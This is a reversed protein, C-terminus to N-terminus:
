HVWFLPRYWVQQHPVLWTIWSAKSTGPPRFESTSTAPLFSRPMGSVSPSILSIFYISPYLTVLHWIVNYKHLIWICICPYSFFPVRSDAALSCFNPSKGGLLWSKQSREFRKLGFSSSVDVLAAFSMAWFFSTLRWPRLPQWLHRRARHVGSLNVSCPFFFPWLLLILMPVAFVTFVFFLIVAVFAFQYIYYQDYIEVQTLSSWCNLQLNASRSKGENNGVFRFLVLKWHHWLTQILNTPSNSNDKFLLSWGFSKTGSGWCNRPNNSGM